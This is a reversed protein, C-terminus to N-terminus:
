LRPKSTLLRSESNFTTDRLARGPRVLLPLWLAWPPACLAFVDFAPAPLGLPPAPLALFLYHALNFGILLLVQLSFPWNAIDNLTVYAM